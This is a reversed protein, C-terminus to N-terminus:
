PIIKKLNKIKHSVCPTRLICVDICYIMLLDTKGEPVEGDGAFFILENNKEAMM